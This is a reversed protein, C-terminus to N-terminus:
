TSYLENSNLMNVKLFEQLVQVIADCVDPVIQGITSSPHSVFLEVETVKM